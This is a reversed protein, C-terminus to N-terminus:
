ANDITGVEVIEEFVENKIQDVGRTSERPVRFPNWIIKRVVGDAWRGNPLRTNPFKIFKWHENQLNLCLGKIFEDKTLTGDQNVDITSFIDKARVKPDGSPRNGMGELMKYLSQLFLSMDVSSLSSCLTLWHVISLYSSVGCRWWTTWRWRTSWAPTTRTM